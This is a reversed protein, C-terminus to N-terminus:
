PSMFQHGEWGGFWSRLGSRACFLGCQLWVSENM